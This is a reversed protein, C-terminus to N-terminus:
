WKYYFIIKETKRKKKMTKYGTKVCKIQKQKNEIM